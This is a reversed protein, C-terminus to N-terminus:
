RRGYVAEDIDTVSEGDGAGVLPDVPDEGPGAFGSRLVERILAAKSLGRRRAEHALEEDVEDELHIQIRRM